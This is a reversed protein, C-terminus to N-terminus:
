RNPDGDRIWLTAGGVVHRPSFTAKKPAEQVDAPLKPCTEEEHRRLGQKTMFEQGCHKCAGVPRQGSM